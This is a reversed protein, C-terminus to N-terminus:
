RAMQSPTKDKKGKVKNIKKQQDCQEAVVGCSGRLELALLRLSGQRCTICSFQWQYGPGLGACRVDREVHRVVLRGSPGLGLVRRKDLFQKIANLLSAVVALQLLASYTGHCDPQILANALRSQLVLRGLRIHVWDIMSFAQAAALVVAADVTAGALENNESSIGLWQANNKVDREDALLLVHGIDIDGALNSQHTASLGRM